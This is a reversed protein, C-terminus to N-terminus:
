QWHSLQDAIVEWDLSPRESHVQGGVELGLRLFLDDHAEFIFSLSYFLFHPLLGSVSAGSIAPLVYTQQSWM